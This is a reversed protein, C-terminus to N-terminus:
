KAAPAAAAASPTIDVLEVDFILVAGPPIGPRGDDGYALSPPVYLKIKGGKSIKQLGETWGAIVKDLQFEVPKGQRESSDFVSGDILTGTYNVKVTDTAKPPDGAGPAVVTFRLGSPLETVTKDDKLKAFFAAAQQSNRRKLNDLMVAQKKQMFDSMAPGIKQIEYPTDKGSMAGILGKSVQELETQTLGMDSIGMRKGIYWGFEELLQDDTFAPAPAVAPAAAAPAPAASADAPGPSAPTQALATSVAFLSLILAKPTINM